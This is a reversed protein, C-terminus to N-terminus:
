LVAPGSYRRCVFRESPEAEIRGIAERLTAITASRTRALIEALSERSADVPFRLRILVGDRADVGEESPMVVGVEATMVHGGGTEELLEFSRLEVSQTQGEFM